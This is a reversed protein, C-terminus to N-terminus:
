TGPSTRSIAARMWADADVTLGDFELADRRRVVHTFGCRELVRATGPNDVRAHARVEVIRWDPALSLVDTVAATAIGRGQHDHGVRYGLEARGEAIDVLNVRGVVEAGAYVLLLRDTGADWWGCANVLSAAVADLHFYADGRDPVWTRFHTRNDREFALVRAPDAEHAPRLTLGLGALRPAELTSSAAAPPTM